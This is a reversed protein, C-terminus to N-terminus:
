AKRELIAIYFTDTEEKDTWFRHDRIMSFEKNAALFNDVQQESESPFASCTSYVIRGGKKVIPAYNQLIEKQLQHLATIEEPKLTWKADPNRRFVGSGSCPVDLLLRDATEYLRKIVKQSDIHRTEIIQAGARSARKRLDDLKGDITDLAIIKGKNHMLSAIHLTKGGTGACADVVRMGPRVDLFVSVMQSAPDQVEFMGEKFGKLRFVNRNYSLEVADAFRHLINAEIKEEALMALLSEPNNKILNARLALRPQENLAQALTTWKKGLEKAGLNYLWDPYSDLIRRDRIRRFATGLKDKDIKKFPAIFPIVREQRILSSAIFAFVNLRTIKEEGTVTSYLRFYRIIDSVTDAVFSRSYDNWGPNTKMVRQLAKDLYVGKEMVASVADVIGDIEDRRYKAQTFRKKRM